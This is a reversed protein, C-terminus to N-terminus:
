SFMHPARGGPAVAAAALARAERCGAHLQLTPRLQRTTFQQLARRPPSERQLALVARMGEGAAGLLERAAHVRAAGGPAGSPGTGRSGDACGEVALRQLSAACATATHRAYESVAELGPRVEAACQLLLRRMVQRVLAALEVDGERVVADWAAAAAKLLLRNCQNLGERLSGPLLAAALGQEDGSLSSGDPSLLALLLRWYRADVCPPSDSGHAKLGGCLWDLLFRLRHPFLSSPGADLLANALQLKVERPTAGSRLTRIVDVALPMKEDRHQMM